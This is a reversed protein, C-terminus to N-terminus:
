PKVEGVNTLLAEETLSLLAIADKDDVIVEITFASSEQPQIDLFFKM